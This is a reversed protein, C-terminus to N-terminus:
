LDFSDTPGTIYPTPTHAKTAPFIPRILGVFDRRVMSEQGRGSPLVSLKEPYLHLPSLPPPDGESQPM